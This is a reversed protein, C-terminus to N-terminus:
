RRCANTLTEWEEGSVGPNGNCLFLLQPNGVGVGAAEEQGARVSFGLWWWQLGGGGGDDDNYAVKGVM